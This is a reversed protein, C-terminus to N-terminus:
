MWGQHGEGIWADLSEMIEDRQRQTSGYNHYSEKSQTRKELRELILRRNAKLYYYRDFLGIFDYMNASGGFFYTDRNLNKKILDRLRKGDWNWVM